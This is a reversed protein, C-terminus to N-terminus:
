SAASSHSRTPFVRFFIQLCIWVLALALPVSLLAVLGFGAVAAFQEM